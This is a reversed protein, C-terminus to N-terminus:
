WQGADILKKVRRKILGRKLGSLHSLFLKGDLHDTEHLIARAMLDTWTYELWKGSVDQARLTVTRPRTVNESFGPISLCGEKSTQRGDSHIIVPNILVIKM